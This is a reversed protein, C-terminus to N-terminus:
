EFQISGFKKFEHFSKEVPSWAWKIMKGGDYDLRYFNANWVTGSQPLVDSFSKLLGNPFFLEASWSKISANIEAKGGAVHVSKKVKRAGEYRWPAWGSFSGDFNPILLVLEKGLHNIEYEFYLPLQPAPHFFAEFVDGKFLDEFDQQYQTTIKDDQGSFLLYIGKASYLIKFKSEYEGGGSDLKHLLHWETRSWEKADGKGTLNFDSCKKVILNPMQPQYHKHKLEAFFYQFIMPWVFLLIKM